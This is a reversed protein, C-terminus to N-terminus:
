ATYHVSELLSERLASAREDDMSEAFLQLPPVEAMSTLAVEDKQYSSSFSSSFRKMLSNKMEVTGPAWKCKTCLSSFRVYLSYVLIGIFELFAVTTSTYIVAEQAGGSYRVFLTAVSLLGLNAFFSFELTNLPWKRYVGNGIWGFVSLLQMSIATVLLIVNPGYLVNVSFILFLTGRVFLLFGTWFRYRDKYPAMYADFFPKLRNVWHFLKHASLAQFCRVFLLLFTFPVLIFLLVILSIVFLFIHKGALYDQHANYLWVVSTTNDSHFVNTFSVGIIVTRQLKAFSLLFLTALVQVANKGFLNAMSSFYHCLLIVVGIIVWVYVPFVFQLLTKAYTDLGDYFCTKIGFDLNLWAIFVTILNNHGPPFFIDKNIQVVNAYFILGNITGVTVNLSNCLFLLFVLFFGAFAFYILLSLYNDSCIVCENSGLTLSYGPECIGCIRGTRNYACQSDQHSFNLNFSDPVCYDFPCYSHLLIVGQNQDELGMWMPSVRTVTESAIDCKVGFQDLLSNCVCRPPDTAIVFGPPCPELTIRIVTPMDRLVSDELALVMRHRSQPSEITYRLRTCAKGVVQTFQLPSLVPPEYPESSNSSRRRTIFESFVVGPSIGSRQGYAVADVEFTQGSFLSVNYRRMECHPVNGVCLCLRTPDSSILQNSNSKSGEFHFLQDFIMGSEGYSSVQRVTPVLNCQDISGGYIDNGALDADNGRFVVRSNLRTSVDDLSQNSPVTVNSYDLDREDIQWFCLLRSRYNGSEVYLAGGRFQATNNIFSINTEPTLLFISFGLLSLGGGNTGSNRSFEIEGKFRITSALAFVATGMNDAFRCDEFTIDQVSILQVTNLLDLEFQQISNPLEAIPYINSDFVCDNITFQVLLSNLVSLISLASGPSGINQTFTCNEIRVQFVHDISDMAGFQIGVGGGLVANNGVFQSDTISLLDHQNHSHQFGCAPSFTEPLESGHVYILGGGVFQSGTLITLVSPRFLPNSYGSFTNTISISSNDVVEYMVFALNAGYHAVNQTAVVNDVHVQLGYSSQTMIVALGSGVTSDVLNTGYTVLVSEVSLSYVPPDDIPCEPIDAYGIGINGGSCIFHSEETPLEDCLPVDYTHFNSYLVSSNRITSNGLINVGLLGHGTSNQIMVNTMELDYVSAIFLAMNEIPTFQFFSRTYINFVQDIVEPTNGVGCYTFTLGSITLQTVNLFLFGSPNDPSCLIESQPVSTGQQLELEGTLTLNRVDRIIIREGGAFTLDHVGQLFVVNTHDSFPQHGSGNIYDSMTLCVVDASTTPCAEAEDSNSPIIYHLGECTAPTITLSTFLLLLLVFVTNFNTAM